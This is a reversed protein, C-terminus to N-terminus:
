TRLGKEKLLSDTWAADEPSLPPAPEQSYDLDALYRGADYTQDMAAQLDLLVDPDDGALPVRVRPLRQRLGIRWFEYTNRHPSRSLCVLYDWTGWELLSERPAAVTHAGSRLLDIELLHVESNLVERQKKLYEERGESGPTKNSPSLIEIVTVIRKPPKLRRIEIFGENIEVPFVSMVEPVDQPELVAAGSRPMLLPREPARKFVAVDPYVSRRPDVIYLRADMRAAYEPPLVENLYATACYILGNHVGRWLDPDELYPDM